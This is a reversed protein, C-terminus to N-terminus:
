LSGKQEPLREEKKGTKSGDLKLYITSFFPKSRKNLNKVTGTSSDILRDSVKINDTLMVRPTVCLKLKAPLNATKSLGINGPM